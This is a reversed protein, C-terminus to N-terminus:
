VTDKEDCRRREKHVAKVSKQVQSLITTRRRTLYFQTTLSQLHEILYKTFAAQRGIAEESECMDINMGKRDFDEIAQELASVIRVAQFEMQQTAFNPYFKEFCKM